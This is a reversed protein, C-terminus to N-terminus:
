NEIYEYINYKETPDITYSSSYIKKLKNEQGYELGNDGDIYKPRIVYLKSNNNKSTEYELYSIWSSPTFFYYSAKDWKVYKLNQSRLVSYLKHTSDLYYVLSINAPENDIFIKSNDSLINQQIYKATEKADSYNYKIDKIYYLCGNILTLFFLSSVLIIVIKNNRIQEISDMAIWICFILIIYYSFIRTIYLIGGGYLVVYIIIQFLFNFLSIIFLKKSYKYLYINIAIFILAYATILSKAFITYKYIGQQFDFLLSNAFFISLTKFIRPVVNTFNFSIYFNNGAVDHLQFICTFISLLIIMAAFIFQKQKIEKFNDYIFIIFMIGTFILMIAHTNAILAIIIGYLVPQEKQKSYLIAALFVLVPIIAYNRAMVPLFYLFGASSIIAIKIINSFPSKYLLIFVALCMSLWCILQMFIINSTLKAFPMVLLYFLAPHGENHLHIFLEPISLYKCIQWVQAEDAWIEHHLVGLITIVAYLFTLFISLVLKKNM